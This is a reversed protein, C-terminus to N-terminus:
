APCPVSRGPLRQESGDSRAAVLVYIVDAHAFAVAHSRGAALDTSARGLDQENDLWAVPEEDADLRLHAALRAVQQQLQRAALRVDHAGASWLVLPQGSSYYATTTCWYPEPPTWQRERLFVNPESRVTPVPPRAATKPAAGARRRRALADLLRRITTKM